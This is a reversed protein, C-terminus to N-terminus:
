SGPSADGGGLVLPMVRFTRGGVTGLLAYVGAPLAEMRFCGEADLEAAAV